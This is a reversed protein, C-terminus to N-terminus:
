DIQEVRFMFELDLKNGSQTGNDGNEIEVRFGTNHQNYYTINPDDYSNQNLRRKSLLILYDADALPMDFTIQYVGTSIRSCTAGNIKSVTGDSLVKGLIRQKTLLTGNCSAYISSSGVNQLNSIRVGGVVHLTEQPTTTGIGVQANLMVTFWMMFTTYYIKM